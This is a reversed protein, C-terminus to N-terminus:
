RSASGDSKRVVIPEGRRPTLLLGLGIMGVALGAHLWNDANDVPIFNWDSNKDVAVGYVLVVAYILGGGLLFAQAGRASRAMLLGVGFALHVVNHLVSVHFVGLLEPVPGDHDPGAWSLEDVNTTIGPIFGAIGVLIFTAAVLSAALQVPQRQRATRSESTM